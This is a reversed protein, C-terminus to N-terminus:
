RNANAYQARTPRNELESFVMEQKRVPVQVISNDTMVLDNQLRGKVHDLNILFSRGVCLFNDRHCFNQAIQSLTGRFTFLDSVTHLIVTHQQGTEFFLIDAYPISHRFKKQILLFNQQTKLFIPTCQKMIDTFDSRDYPKQLYYLNNGKDNDPTHCAAVLIIIGAYGMTHLQQITDMGNDGDICATLFLLIPQEPASKYGAALEKVSSFTVIDFDIHREKSFTNLYRELLRADNKMKECIYILM